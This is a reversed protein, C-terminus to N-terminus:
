YNKPVIGRRENEEGYIYGALTENGSPFSVQSRPYDAKYKEDYMYQLNDVQDVSMSRYTSKFMYDTVWICFAIFAAVAILLIVIIIKVMKSIVDTGAGTPWM